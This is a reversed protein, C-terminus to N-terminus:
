SQGGFDAGAWAQAMPALLVQVGPQCPNYRNGARPTCPPLRARVERFPVTITTPTGPAPSAEAFHELFIGNGQLLVDAQRPLPQSGPFVSHTVTYRLEGGYSTVQRRLAPNLRASPHISVARGPCPSVPGLGAEGVAWGLM